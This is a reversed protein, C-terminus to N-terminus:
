EEVIYGFTLTSVAVVILDYVVLLDIWVGVEAPTRGEVLGGSAQVAAAEPLGTGPVKFAAVAAWLGIVLLLYVVNPNTLLSWLTQVLESDM